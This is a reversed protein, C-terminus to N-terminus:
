ESYIMGAEKYQAYSEPALDDFRTFRGTFLLHVSGVPGNRQKGIIIEALGKNGEKEPHYVEDRYVFGIVDADQEIAGSERLDSMIPRKNTRQELGRNLQSLAVVPCQFEKALAKLSRSIESIEATRNESNGPVRMLQLYDVMIMAIDGNERAIRRTRTRMDNPSLGPTDDIFLKKDKLLSLTSGIRDWDAEGLHGTRVKTQDIRGLSSFVRMLLQEAPMEMSFVVVAKNTNMMANEVLNMAFTTKGMSPRGAIIVLDSPQLGSTMADLDRFGTTLGTIGSESGDMEQLKDLLGVAVDQISRPGGFKPREEAITFVEREAENLLEDSTRGEPNYASDAIRRAAQILKRRVSRERVIQAYALINSTSPTNRALEILYPDGGVKDLLDRSRLEASLIVPDFPSSRGALEQMVSFIHRHEGRYFDAEVLMEAVGDMAANDIMLGGLVSQEAEMSHPPLKIAAAEKDDNFRTTDM